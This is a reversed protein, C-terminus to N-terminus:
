SNPCTQRSWGACPSTNTSSWNPLPRASLQPRHAPHAIPRRERPSPRHNAVLTQNGEPHRRGAQGPDAPAAAQLAAGPHQHGLPRRQHAYPRHRLRHGPHAGRRLPPLPDRGGPQRPHHRRHLPPLPELAVATALTSKGNGQEGSIAIAPLDDGGTLWDHLLLLKRRSGSFGELQYLSLNHPHRRPKHCEHVPVACATMGAAALALSITPAKETVRM